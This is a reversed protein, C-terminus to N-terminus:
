VHRIITIKKKQINNIFSIEPTIQGQNNWLQVTHIIHIHNGTGNALNCGNAGLVIKEARYKSVSYGPVLIESDHTVSKVKSETLNVVVAFPALGLYSTLTVSASSTYILRPVNHKICLNIINKTGSYMFISCLSLTSLSLLIYVFHKILDFTLNNFFVFWIESLNQTM